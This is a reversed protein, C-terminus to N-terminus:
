RISLSRRGLGMKAGSTSHLTTLLVAHVHKASRLRSRGKKTVRLLVSVVGAKKATVYGRAILLAPPKHTHHKSSAFAPLAGGQRYLDEVVTGPQNIGVLVHWGSKLLSHITLHGLKMVSGQLAPPQPPPPPAPPAPCAGVPRSTESTYTYTAGEALLTKLSETATITQGPQLPALFNGGFATGSLTKVQAQGFGSENLGRVHGYPDTRLSYTVYSGEVTFGASNQGSFNASGACVTPDMSPLGDYVVSGVVRGIPSELTVVDGVQPVQSLSAGGNGTQRYVTIGGRIISVAVEASPDASGWTVAVSRYEPFTTEGEAVTLMYSPTHNGWAGAPGAGVGLALLALLAGGVAASIRGGLAPRSCKLSRGVRM